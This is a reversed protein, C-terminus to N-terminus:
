AHNQENSTDFGSASPACFSPAAGPATTRRVPECSGFHYASPTGAVSGFSTASRNFSNFGFAHITCCVGFRGPIFMSQPEATNSRAFSLIMLNLPPCEAYLPVEGNTY